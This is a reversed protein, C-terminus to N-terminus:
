ALPRARDHAAVRLDAKLERDLPRRHQAGERPVGPVDAARVPGHDHLVNACISLHLGEDEPLLRGLSGRLLIWLAASLAPLLKPKQADRAPTAHLVATAADM